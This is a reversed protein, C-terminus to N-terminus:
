PTFEPRLAQAALNPQGHRRYFAALAPRARPDRPSQRAAKQYSTAADDFDGDEEQLHALHLRTEISSPSFAVLEKVHEITQRRITIAQLQAAFPAAKQPQSLRTYCTVLGQLMPEANPAQRLGAQFFPLAEAPRNANMLIDGLLSVVRRDDPLGAQARRAYDLAARVNEPTHPKQNILTAMLFCAEPDNPHIQAYPALDHEAGDMDLRDIKVRVLPLLYDPDNPRLNLARSLAALATGEDNVKVAVLGYLGWADSDDPRLQAARKSAALAAKPNQDGLEARNLRLFLTGDDPTIKAAAEYEQAAERYRKQQLYLDGLQGYCEAAQPDARVGRLWDQEADATRGAAMDALGKQYWAQGPRHTQRWSWFASLCALLVAALALGIKLPSLPKGPSKAATIRRASTQARPKM